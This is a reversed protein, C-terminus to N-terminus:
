TGLEGGGVTAAAPSAPAPKFPVADSWTYLPSLITTPQVEDIRTLATFSMTASNGNQCTQYVLDHGRPLDSTTATRQNLMSVIGGVRYTGALEGTLTIVEGAEDPFDRGGCSWHEAITPVGYRETLDVSGACEDLEDLWGSAHVHNSYRSGSIRDQEAQWAAVAATVAAVSADLSEAQALTTDSDSFSLTELQRAAARVTAGTEFLGGDAPADVTATRRASAVDSTVESVGTRVASIAAALEVRPQNDLVRGASDRLAIRAAVLHASAANVRESAVEQLPISTARAQAFEARAGTRDLHLAFTAIGAAVVAAVAVIAVIRPARRPRPTPSEASM